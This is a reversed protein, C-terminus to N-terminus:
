KAGRVELRKVEEEVRKEERMQWLRIEEKDEKRELEERNAQYHTFCALLWPLDREQFTDLPIQMALHLQMVNKRKVAVKEEEALETLLGEADFILDSETLAPYTRQAHHLVVEHEEKLHFRSVWRATEETPTLYLLHVGREAAWQWLLRIASRPGEFSLQLLRGKIKEQDTGPGSWGIPGHLTAIPDGVPLPPLKIEAKLTCSVEQFTPLLPQLASVAIPSLHELDM